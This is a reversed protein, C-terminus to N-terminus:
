PRLVYGGSYQLKAPNRYICENAGPWQIDIDCILINSFEYLGHDFRIDRVRASGWIQLELLIDRSYCEVALISLIWIM